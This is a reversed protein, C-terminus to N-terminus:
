QHEWAQQMRSVGLCEGFCVLFILRQRVKEANFFFIIMFNSNLILFCVRYSLKLNKSYVHIYRHSGKPSHPEDKEIPKQRALVHKRATDSRRPRDRIRACENDAHSGFVDRINTPRKYCPGGEDVSMAQRHYQLMAPHLYPSSM